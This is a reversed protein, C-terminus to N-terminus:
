HTATIVYARCGAGALDLTPKLLPCLCLTVRRKWRTLLGVKPFQMFARPRRNKRERLGFRKLDRAMTSPMPARMALTTYLTRRRPMPHLLWSADSGTWQLSWWGTPKLKLGVNEGEWFTPKRRCTWGPLDRLLRRASRLRSRRSAVCRGASRPRGATTPYDRARAFARVKM